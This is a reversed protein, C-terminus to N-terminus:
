SFCKHIYMYYQHDNPELTCHVTPTYATYLSHIVHSRLHRGFSFGISDIQKPFHTCVHMNYRM